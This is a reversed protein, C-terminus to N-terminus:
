RGRFLYPFNHAAVDVPRTIDRTPGIELALIEGGADIARQGADALEFPPGPLGELSSALEDGLFWLPAAALPSRTTGPAPKEVLAVVRGDAVRVSAREPLEELPVDRVALGGATGSAAWRAAAWGIDGRTYVTDAASVLLPPRAGAEVARRVADASGVAEPQRAYRLALGFASGDELLAEIEERLHGVVVTVRELGAAALEHLLTAIVPRGDIPLVAKPWRDTLPRMRVGQGAAIVVGEVDLSVRDNSRNLSGIAM